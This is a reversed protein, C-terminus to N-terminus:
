QAYTLKWVDNYVATSSGNALWLANRFTFVSAAHRYTWPTGPLNTWQQGDTSYWVDTSGAESQATGGALVWIKNDFVAVDHYQRGTWPADATMRTWNAGDSSNWVDNLYTRQDYTGGGLIWMKGNYIVSGIMLGRPSWDAGSTILTWSRGDSSSYVDHYAGGVAGNDFSDIQQGGMYWMEGNFVTTIQTARNAWPVSGTELVWNIGDASSWVDNQYHGTNNDGGVVWMRNDYVLWGALHRREWPAHNVFNWNAGDSSAYVENTTDLANNPNWGGLLWAQNQFVLVGAGDRPLYQLQMLALIQAPTFPVANSISYIQCDDISGQWFNAMAPNVGSARGFRVVSDTTFVPSTNTMSGQVAGDIYLEYSGKICQLFIFHWRGDTFVGPSGVAISTASAGAVKVELAHGSNFDFNLDADGPIAGRTVSWATMPTSQTSQVWFGLSFSPFPGLATPLDIYSSSGNFAYARGANGFRDVAPIVDHIIGDFGKGNANTANGNFPYYAVLSDNRTGAKIRTWAYVLSPVETPNFSRDYLRLDDIAGRWGLGTSGGIVLDTALNLGGVSVSQQLVGDVYASLNAGDFQVLFHHWSGDAFQGPEGAALVYSNFNGWHIGIGWKNNFELAAIATTGDVIAWAQEPDKSSTSGWFSIAFSGAAINGIGQVSALSNTGDFGYALTDGGFRDPVTTLSYLSSPLISITPASGNGAYSYIQAFPDCNASCSFAQVSPPASDFTPTTEAIPPTSAVGSAGSLGHCGSLWAAPTSLAMWRLIDRREIPRKSM